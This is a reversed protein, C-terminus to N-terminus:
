DFLHLEAKVCSVTAARISYLKVTM